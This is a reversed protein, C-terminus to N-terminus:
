ADSLSDRLARVWQTRDRARDIEKQNEETHYAIEWEAKGKEKELWEAGSLLVAPHEKYYDEMGDFKISGKIQDVMFEQFSEHEPTPPLWSKVQKLMDRYQQMLKQNGKVERAIRGRETRYSRSTAIEAENPTMAVLENLRRNAKALEEIHWTSPKFEDPIPKDTPDDRMTICASFARACNMAFQQFTIGKAIDATYGTPM